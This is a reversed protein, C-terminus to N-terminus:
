TGCRLAYIANARAACIFDNRTIGGASHTAYRVVCNKYTVVLEPHHDQHRVMWALANVFALTEDYDAFAYDRCLAGDHVAWGAVDPLLETLEEQALLAAGHACLETELKM